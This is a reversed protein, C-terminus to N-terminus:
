LFTVKKGIEIITPYTLLIPNQAVKQSKYLSQYIKIMKQYENKKQFKERSLIELITVTTGNRNLISLNITNCKFM